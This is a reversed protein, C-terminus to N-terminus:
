VRLDCCLQDDACTRYFGVREVDVALEFHRVAGLRNNTRLFQPQERGSRREVFSRLLPQLSTIQTLKTDETVYRKAGRLRIREPYGGALDEMQYIAYRAEM